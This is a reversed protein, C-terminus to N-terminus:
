FEHIKGDKFNDLQYENLKNLTFKENELVLKKKVTNSFDASTYKKFLENDDNKMDNNTLVCRTMKIM